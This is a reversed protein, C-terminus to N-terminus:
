RWVEMEANDYEIVRLGAEHYAFSFFDLFAELPCEKGRRLRMWVMVDSLHRTKHLSLSMMQLEENSVRCSGQMTILSSNGRCHAKPLLTLSIFCVNFMALEKSRIVKVKKLKMQTETDSLSLIDGCEDINVEIEEGQPRHRTSLVGQVFSPKTIIRLILRCRRDGGFTSVRAYRVENRRRVGAVFSM